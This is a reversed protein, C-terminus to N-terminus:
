KLKKKTKKVKKEQIDYKVVNKLSDLHQKLYYLSDDANGVKGSVEYKQTFGCSWEAVVNYVIV